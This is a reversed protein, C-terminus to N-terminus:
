IMKPERTRSAHAQRLSYYYDISKPARRPGFRKLCCASNRTLKRAVASAEYFEHDLIGLGLSALPIYTRGDQAVVLDATRVIIGARGASEANTMMGAGGASEATSTTRHDSLANWEQVFQVEREKEEPM